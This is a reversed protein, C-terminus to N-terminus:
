FEERGREQGRRGGHRRRWVGRGVEERGGERERGSRGADSLWSISFMTNVLDNDGTEEKSGGGGVFSCVTM